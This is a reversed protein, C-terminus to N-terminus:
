IYQYADSQLIYNMPQAKEDQSEPTGLMWSQLSINRSNLLHYLEKEKFSGDVTYRFHRLDARSIRSYLKYELSSREFPRNAVDLLAQLLFKRNLTNKGQLWRKGEQWGAVGHPRFLEQGLARMVMRHAKNGILRYGTQRQFGIFLEVPTKVKNRYTKTNYFWNSTFIFRLLHIFSYDSDRYVKACVDIDDPLPDVNGYFSLVKKCIFKATQEQDLILDIVDFRDFNGKRGFITKLGSDHLDPVISYYNSKEDPNIGTFARAIGIIDEQTYSGVGLTYLELLERAFNENPDEKSSRLGTLFYLVSKNVIIEKLLDRLKGLANKRYIEILTNGSITDRMISPFHQHWFLAAKERLANDERSMQMLWAHILTEKPMIDRQRQLEPEDSIFLPTDRIELADLPVYDPIRDFLTTYCYEGKVLTDFM